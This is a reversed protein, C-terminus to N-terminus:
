GSRWSPFESERKQSRSRCGKQEFHTPPGVAGAEDPLKNSICVEPRVELWWTLGKVLLIGLHDKHM